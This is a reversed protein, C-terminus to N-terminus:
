DEWIIRHEEARIDQPRAFNNEFYQLTIQSNKSQQEVISSVTQGTFQALMNDKYFAPIDDIPKGTMGLLREWLQTHSWFSIPGSLPSTDQGLILGCAQSYEAQMLGGPRLKSNFVSQPTESIRQNSIRQWMINLDSLFQTKNRPRKLVADKISIVESGLEKDGAIIRSHTLAIHEWNYARSSHHEEFSSLMVAPPGSRGSPRLRMDLEYAIGETLKATLVTRLRRVVKQAFDTDTDNAFIFVLDLDSLPSMRSTGMKGLGLVTMPLPGTNLDEAVINLAAQVTMEALQTLKKHLIQPSGNQGMFHTYHLFLNENVFRRLRELRIEYDDSRFIFETSIQPQPSLFTDIIHPSQKLLLSMHPSHLLPPILANLLQEDRSLLDLYQDSRSVASLFRDIQSIATEPAGATEFTQILLSRGLRQFKQNNKSNVQHSTFGDLWNKAIDLTAAPLTSLKDEIENSTEIKIESHEFIKIFKTNVYRRIAEIKKSLIEWNSYGLLALINEQSAHSNPVIHTQENDLMQITNELQRLEIYHNQLQKSTDKDIHGLQSLHSLAELTNSTRLEYQKGGWVLQQANAIFEIERIGGTGLKVNFGSLKDTIPEPQARQHRLAPHELNIRSKLHALEDLARFDLNQRWIFPTITKLFSDGVEIDGAIVRAKMLALRHWPLARFFYFDQAMDLSMALQTSSAEPRLRWDVRWVFRSSNRPKLIQSMTKLIKNVVYGQGINEPIPLTEPDYFAVLDVDSSFNLDVGGLKGLGLIFIGLPNTPLSKLKLAKTEQYWAIRLTVDISADAFRSQLHGLDQFDKQKNLALACWGLAFREKLTLLQNAADSSTPDIDQLKNLTTEASIEDPANHDELLGELYPSFKLQEINM